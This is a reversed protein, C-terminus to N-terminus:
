AKTSESPPGGRAVSGCPWPPSWVPEGPPVQPAKEARVWLRQTSNKGSTSEGRQKCTGSNCKGRGEGLPQSDIGPFPAAVGRRGKGRRVGGMQRASPHIDASTTSPTSPPEPSITLHSLHSNPSPSAEAPHGTAPAAESPPESLADAALLWSSAKIHTVRFGAQPCCCPTLGPVPPGPTGM